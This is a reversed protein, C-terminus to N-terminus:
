EATHHEEESLAENRPSFHFNESHDKGESHPSLSIFTVGKKQNQCKLCFASKCQHVDVTSHLRGPHNPDPSIYEEKGMGNDKMETADSRKRSRAAHQQLAHHRTDRNTNLEYKRKDQCSEMFDGKLENRLEDQNIETFISDGDFSDEHYDEFNLFDDTVKWSAGILDDLSEDTCKRRQQRNKSLFLAFLLTTAVLSVGLIAGAKISEDNNSVEEIGAEKPNFKGSGAFLINSGFDVSGGLFTMKVVLEGIFIDADMAEKLVVLLNETSEVIKNDDENLLTM